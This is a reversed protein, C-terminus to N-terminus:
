SHTHTHSSNIIITKVATKRKKCKNVVTTNQNLFNLITEFMPNLSPWSPGPLADPVILGSYHSLPGSHATRIRCRDLRVLWQTTTDPCLPSMTVDYHGLSLGRGSDVVKASCQRACCLSNARRRQRSASLRRNTTAVVNFLVAWNYSSNLYSTSVCILSDSKTCCNGSHFM